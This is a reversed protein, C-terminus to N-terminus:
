MLISGLTVRSGSIESVKDLVNVAYGYGRLLYVAALVLQDAPAVAEVPKKPILRGQQQLMRMAYDVSKKAMKEEDMESLDASGSRFSQIAWTAFYDRLENQFQPYRDLWRVLAEYSPRSEEVMLEDVVDDFSPNKM